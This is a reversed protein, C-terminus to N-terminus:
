SNSAIAKEFLHNAEDGACNKFVCSTLKLQIIDFARKAILPASM